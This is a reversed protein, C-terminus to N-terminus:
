LLDITLQAQKLNLKNDRAMQTNHSEKIIRRNSRKKTKRLKRKVSRKILKKEM